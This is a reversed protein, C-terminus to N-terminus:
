RSTLSAIIYLGTWVTAYAGLFLGKDPRCLARVNGHTLWWMVLFVSAVPWFGTLLFVVNLATSLDFTSSGM